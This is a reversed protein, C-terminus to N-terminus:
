VETDRDAILFTLPSDRLIELSCISSSDDLEPPDPIFIERFSGGLQVLESITQAHITNEFDENFCTFRYPADEEERHWAVKSAGLRGGVFVPESIRKARVGGNKL